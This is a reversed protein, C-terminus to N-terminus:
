SAYASHAAHAYQMFVHQFVVATKAEVDKDTYIDTPLGTTDSWLFDHIFARVDAKTAEKERWNDVRLKEAKLAELLSSAVKKIRNRDRTSLDKGEILIDFLALNEEDLGERM